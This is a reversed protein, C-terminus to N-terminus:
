YLSGQEDLPRPNVGTVPSVRTRIGSLAGKTCLNRLTNEGDAM